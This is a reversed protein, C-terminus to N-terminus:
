LALKRLGLRHLQAGEQAWIRRRGVDPPVPVVYDSEVILCYARYLHNTTVCGDTLCGGRCRELIHSRKKLRYITQFFFLTLWM